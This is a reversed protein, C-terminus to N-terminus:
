KNEDIFHDTGAEIVDGLTNDVVVIDNEQLNMLGLLDTTCRSIKVLASNLFAPSYISKDGLSCVQKGVVAFVSTVVLDFNKSFYM